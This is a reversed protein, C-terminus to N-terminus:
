DTYRLCMYTETEFLTSYGGGPLDNNASNYKYSGFPLDKSPPKRKTLGNTYIRVPHHIRTSSM